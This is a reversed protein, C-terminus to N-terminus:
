PRSADSGVARGLHDILRRLEDPEGVFSWRQKGANLEVQRGDKKAEVRRLAAGRAEITEHGPASDPDPVYRFGGEILELEGQCRGKGIFPLGGHLHQVKIFRARQREEDRRVLTARLAALQPHHPLLASAAELWSRAEEPSGQEVVRRIEVLAAERLRPAEGNQPDVKLAAEVFALACDEAPAAVRGAALAGEGKTVLARAQSRVRARPDIADAAAAAALRVTADPDREALEVLRPLALTSRVAGLLGCLEARLGADSARLAAALVGEGVRLDAATYRTLAKLVVRAQAPQREEVGSRLAALLPEVARPDRLRGLAQAAAQRVSVSSDKLANVLAPVAVAAEAGHGGLAEAAERRETTTGVSLRELLTAAPLATPPEPEPEPSQAGMLVDIPLTEEVVTVPLPTPEPEPERDPGLLLMGAGLSLVGAALGVVVLLVERPTVKM